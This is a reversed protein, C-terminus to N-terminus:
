LPTFIAFSNVSGPRIISNAPTQSDEFYNLSAAFNYSFPFRISFAAVRYM